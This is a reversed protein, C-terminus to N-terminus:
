ASVRGPAGHRARTDGRELTAEKAWELRLRTLFAAAFFVFWAAMSLLLTERMEGTM